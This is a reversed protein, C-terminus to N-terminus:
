EGGGSCVAVTVEARETGDLIGGQPNVVWLTDGTAPVDCDLVHSRSAPSIGDGLSAGNAACRMADWRLLVGSGDVGGGTSLVRLRWHGASIAQTQKASGDLVFQTETCPEPEPAVPEPEASPVAEPEALQRARELSDLLEPASKAQELGILLEPMERLYDDKVTCPATMMGICLASAQTRLAKAVESSLEVANSGAEVGGEMTAVNAQVSVEVNRAWVKFPKECVKVKKPARVPEGDPCMVQETQGALAVAMWLWM